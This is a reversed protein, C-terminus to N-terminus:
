GLKEPPLNAFGLPAVGGAPTPVATSMAEANQDSRPLGRRGGPASGITDGSAAQRSRERVPVWRSLMNNMAPMAVGEGIGLPYRQFMLVIRGARPGTAVVTACPNNPSVGQEVYLTQEAGWTRGGDTSRKLVIENQGNDRGTPRGEAFALLTGKTSVALAPIRYVPVHSEGGVYVDVISEIAPAEGLVAPAPVRVPAPAPPAACAALLAALTCAFPLSARRLSTKM